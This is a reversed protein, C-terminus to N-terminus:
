QPMQPQPQPQPPEPEQPQPREQEPQPTPETVPTNDRHKLEIPGGKRRRAEATTEIREEVKQDNVSAVQDLKLGELDRRTSLTVRSASGDATAAKEYYFDATERDGELESLYGMNNLSFANNPDLHYAQQFYQRAHQSDNRNMASVGRLNLRVVQADVTQQTQMLRRVAKANDAAVKSIAKGRWQPNLAVIVVQSSHAQAASDYYRAAQELEGENEKTFGLNNLTFANRPDVQLAKQLIAEAEQPRGHSLLQMARFNDRNVQLNHDDVGKVVESLQRGKLIDLSAKDVVAHSANQASLAYYRQARDVDGRLESIYGLNNLTFPDDPDLLYADYFLKKAKEYDHKNVAEVGERNLNQVPTGKSRKPLPIKLEAAGAPVVLIAAVLLNLLQRRWQNCTM